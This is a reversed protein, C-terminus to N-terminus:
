HERHLTLEGQLRANNRLACDLQIRLQTTEQQLREVEYRHSIDFSTQGASYKQLESRADKLKMDLDINANKYKEVMKRLKKLEEEAPRAAQQDELSWHGAAKLSPTSRLGAIEEELAVKQSNLRDVQARLQGVEQQKERELQAVKMHLRSRQNRAEVDSLLGESSGFSLPQQSLTPQQQPAPAQSKLLTHLRDNERTVEELKAQLEKMEWLSERGQPASDPAFIPVLPELTYATSSSVHTLSDFVAKATPRSDQTSLCKQILPKLVHEGLDDFDKRRRETEPVIAVFGRGHADMRFPEGASTDHGICIELLVVGFSFVDMPTSYSSGEMRAEPPMYLETGPLRTYRSSAATSGAM